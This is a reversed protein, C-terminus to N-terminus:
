YSPGSVEWKPAIASIDGDLPFVHVDVRGTRRIRSDSPIGGFAVFGNVQIKCHRQGDPSRTQLTAGKLERTTISQGPQCRLKMIWGDHPACMIDLVCFVTQYDQTGIM